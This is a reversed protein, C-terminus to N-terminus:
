SMYTISLDLLLEAVAKTKPRAAPATAMAIDNSIRDNAPPGNMGYSADCVRNERVGPCNSDCATSFKPGRALYEAKVAAIIILKINYPRNAM